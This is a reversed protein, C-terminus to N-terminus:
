LRVDAVLHQPNQTVAEAALHQQDFAQEGGSLLVQRIQDALDAIGQRRGNGADEGIALVGDALCHRLRQGAHRVLEAVEVLM